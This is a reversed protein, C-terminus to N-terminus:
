PEPHGATAGGENGRDIEIDLSEDLGTPFTDAVIKRANNNDLPLDNIEVLLKRGNLSRRKRIKNGSRHALEETSPNETISVDVPPQNIKFAM